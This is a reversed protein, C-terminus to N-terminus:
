ARGGQRKFNILMHGSAFVLEQQFQSDLCTQDGVDGLVITTSGWPGTFNSPTIEANDGGDVVLIFCAERGAVGDTVTMVDPDSSNETTIYHWDKTSDYACADGSCTVTGSSSVINGSSMTLTDTHICKGTCKAQAQTTLLFLVCLLFIIIKMKRM